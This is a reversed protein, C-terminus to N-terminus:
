KRFADMSHSYRKNEPPLEMYNGYLLKLYQDYNSIVPFLKDKFLKLETQELWEIPFKLKMNKFTIMSMNKGYRGKFHKKGFSDTRNLLYNNPLWFFLIRILRRIFSNEKLRRSVLLGNLLFAEKFMSFRYLLKNEPVHDAIFVDVWVGSGSYKMNQEYAITSKDIIKTFTCNNNKPNSKHNFIQFKENNKFCKLFKEYNERTMIIDVDDDWPIFDKHRIAGLLTGGDLSYLIGNKKCQEDIYCLIEYECQKIENLTLKEM